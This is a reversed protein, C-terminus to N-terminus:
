LVDATVLTVKRQSSSADLHPINPPAKLYNGSIALIAATGEHPSPMKLRSEM